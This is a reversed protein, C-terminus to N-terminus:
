RWVHGVQEGLRLEFDDEQQLGKELLKGIM